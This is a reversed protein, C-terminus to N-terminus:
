KEMFVNVTIGMIIAENLCNSYSLVHKQLFISFLRICKSLSVPMKNLVMHSGKFHFAFNYCIVNQFIKKNSKLSFLAHCIMHIM